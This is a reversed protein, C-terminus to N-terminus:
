EAWWEGIFYVAKDDTSFVAWHCLFEPPFYQPTINRNETGDANMMYLDYQGTNGIAAVIYVVQDGSNSWSALGQSYGTQTLRFENSSEIDIIFFDYNGHPSQDDVLRGFVVREGDPSIRPDYDGFPLNADGWEGARPPNTIQRVGTGDSQMMWISSDKTFVIRDGTWDIDAEHSSSDYLQKADSGDANMVYIGLSSARQSLFAVRSGDPSWVPYLDWFGNDTIRRLGNGDTSLTFIEESSSDGGVKQSFVLREGASNLRLNAIEFPSSYLLDIIQTDIGLRYIGWRDEQPIPQQNPPPNDVRQGGQSDTPLAKPPAVNSLNCAIVLLILPILYLKKM